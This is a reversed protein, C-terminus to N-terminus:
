LKLLFRSAVFVIYLIIFVVVIVWILNLIPHKSFQEKIKKRNICGCIIITLVAVVPLASQIAEM